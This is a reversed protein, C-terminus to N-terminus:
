IERFKNKQNNLFVIRNDILSYAMETLWRQDIDFLFLMTAPIIDLTVNKCSTKKTLKNSEVFKMVDSSCEIGDIIELFCDYNIYIVGFSNVFFIAKKFKMSNHHYYYMHFIGCFGIDKIHITGEFKFEPGLFRAFLNIFFKKIKVM